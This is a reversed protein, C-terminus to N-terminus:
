MFKFKGSLDIELVDLKEYGAPNKREAAQATDRTICSLM